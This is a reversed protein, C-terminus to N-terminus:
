CSNTSCHVMDTTLVQAVTPAGTCWVHRPHGPTTLEAYRAIVHVSQWVDSAEDISTSEPSVQLCPMDYADHVEEVQLAQLAPILCAQVAAVMAPRSASSLVYVTPREKNLWHNDGCLKEIYLISHWLDKGCASQSCTLPMVDVPTDHHRPGVASVARGASRV